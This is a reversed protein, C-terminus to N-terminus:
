AAAAGREARRAPADPATTGRDNPSWRKGARSLILHLLVLRAPVVLGHRRIFKVAPKSSDKPFVFWGM